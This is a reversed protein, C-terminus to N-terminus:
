IDDNPPTASAPAPCAGTKALPPAFVSGKNVGISQPYPAGGPDDTQQRVYAM